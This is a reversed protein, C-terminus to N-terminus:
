GLHSVVWIQDLGVAGDIGVMRVVALDQVVVAALLRADLGPVLLLVAAAAIQVIQLLAVTRRDLGGAARRAVHAGVDVDAGVVAVGRGPDRALPLLAAILDTVVLFVADPDVFRLIDAEPVRRRLLLQLVTFIVVVCEGRRTTLLRGIDLPVFCDAIGLPVHEVVLLLEDVRDLIDLAAIDVAAVWLPLEVAVHRQLGGALADALARLLHVVAGVDGALRVLQAVIAVLEFGTDCRKTCRGLLLLGILALPDRLGVLRYM